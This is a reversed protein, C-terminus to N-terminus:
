GSVEVEPGKVVQGEFMDGGFDEMVPAEVQPKPRKRGMVWKSVEKTVVRPRKKGIRRRRGAVKVFVSEETTAKTKEKSKIVKITMLENAM